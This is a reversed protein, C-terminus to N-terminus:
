KNSVLKCNTEVEFKVYSLFDQQDSLSNLFDKLKQPNSNLANYVGFVDIKKDRMSNISYSIEQKIKNNIKEKIQETLSFEILSSKKNIGNSIEAIDLVLSINYKITPMSNVYKVKKNVKQKIVEFTITQESNDKISFIKKLNNEVIWNLGDMEKETLVFKLKGNEFVAHEKKLCIISQTDKPKNSSSNEQNQSNTVDSSSNSDIGKTGDSLIEVVGLTSIGIPSLYGQLFKDINTDKTFTENFENHIVERLKFSSSQSLKNANELLQKSSQNTMVLSVTNPLQNTIILNNLIDVINTNAVEQSIAVYGVHGMRIKRGIQIEINILADAVSNGKGSVLKTNENMNTKDIKSITLVSVEVGQSQKDLDVGIATVIASRFSHSPMILASPLFCIMIVCFYIFAFKHKIQRFKEKIFKLM